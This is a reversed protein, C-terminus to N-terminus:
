TFTYANGTLGHTKANCPVTGRLSKTKKIEGEDFWRTAVVKSETYFRLGDKGLCYLDGFFSQKHGAFPFIGAPVLISANIGVMDYHTRRAFERAIDIIVNFM